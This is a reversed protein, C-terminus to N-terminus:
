ANSASASPPLGSIPFRPALRVCHDRTRARPGLTLVEISAAVFREEDQVWLYWAVTPNATTSRRSRDYARGGEDFPHPRHDGRPRRVLRRLTAHRRRRRSRKAAPRVYPNASPREAWPLATARHASRRASRTHRLPSATSSPRSSLAGRRDRRRGGRDSVSSGARALRLLVAVQIRTPAGRQDQSWGSGRHRSALLFDAVCSRLFSFNRARSVGDAEHCEASATAPRESKM